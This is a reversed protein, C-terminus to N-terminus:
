LVRGLKREEEKEEGGMCMVSALYTVFVRGEVREGRLVLLLFNLFIFKTTAGIM